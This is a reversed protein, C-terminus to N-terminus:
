VVALSGLWPCDDDDSDDYDKDNFDDNTTALFHLQGIDYGKTTMPIVFYQLLGLYQKFLGLFGQFPRFLWNLAYIPM